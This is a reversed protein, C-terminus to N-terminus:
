LGMDAIPTAVIWARFTEWDATAFVGAAVMIAEYEKLLSAPDCLLWKRGVPRAGMAGVRWAEIAADESMSADAKVALVVATQGATREETAADDVSSTKRYSAMGKLEATATALSSNASVQMAAIESSISDVKTKAATLAYIQGSLQAISLSLDETTSM